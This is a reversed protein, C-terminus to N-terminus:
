ETATKNYLGIEEKSRTVLTKSFPAANNEQLVSSEIQWMCLM